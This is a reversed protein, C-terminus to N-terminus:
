HEKQYFQYHWPIQYAEETERNFQRYSLISDRYSLIIDRYSLFIDRYSLTM